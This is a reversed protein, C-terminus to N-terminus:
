PRGAAPRAIAEAQIRSRWDPREILTAIPGPPYDWSQRSMRMNRKDVTFARHKDILEVDCAPVVRVEDVPGDIVILRQVRRASRHDKALLRRFAGM